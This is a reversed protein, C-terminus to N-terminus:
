KTMLTPWNKDAKIIYGPIDKTWEVKVAPSFNVYLKGDVVTWANPDGPALAGKAAAYACFGGYQPAFKEPTAIFAKMNEASAFYWDVGNWSTKFEAMGPKSMKETFYAVPDYGDLAVGDKRSTDIKATAAFANATLLTSATLAGAVTLFNRRNM